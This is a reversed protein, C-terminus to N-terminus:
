LGALYSAMDDVDKDSYSNMLSSKAPSNLRVKNKFEKMTKALYPQTQGNLRPVRSNGEYGGLHCQPCQGAATATEGAVSAAEEARFSIKPWKKESFYQALEKMQARSMEEVIGQMIENARRGAKYDKLQVYLYYYHQGWIIPADEQTPLGEKGHCTVCLEVREELTEQASGSGALVLFWTAIIASRFILRM